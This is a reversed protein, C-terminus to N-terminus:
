RRVKEGLLRGGIVALKTLARLAVLLCIFARAPASTRRSFYRYMGRHTRLVWSLRAQRISVGEIHVARAHPTFWVEWGGARARDAWDIGEWDLFYRPDQGGVADIAARRVLYCSEAGHGVQREEDHAWGDWWFGRTGRRAASARRGLFAQAFTPLDGVSTQLSGDPYTLRAIVFAAKEHREGCALLEAVTTPEYVVDPNSILVWPADTGEIGQNNAAALGLNTSNRILRAEPATEAVVHATADASANDVVVIDVGNAIDSGRLTELCRGITSASNWTVIVAAVLPADAARSV